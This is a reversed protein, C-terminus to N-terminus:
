AILRSREAPVEAPVEAPPEVPPVFPMLPTGGTGRRGRLQAEHLAHFAGRRALLQHYRGSEVVRGGDLVLILDADQTALLNHSILITTRGNMLRRLPEMVRREAAPDLGTAPEDLLMVPTDRIMARAIAVRQRQGGSLRRGRQGVPTELGDPLDAAVSDCDAARVARDFADTDADARGWLINERLTGDIMLTEQMVVGIQDRLDALTRDRVDYGDLSVSGSSPDYFRLLLKALTSKGSGSRGVVAVLEGPRATFSIDQLAPAQSGPYSFSVHRVEVVGQCRGVPWPRPDQTVSPRAHLVEAIREAGASATFASTALEGLDRLPAYLQAFYAMFVLLAGLTLEGRSLQWTGVGVVVMLGILEILEVLPAYIGRLRSSRMATRVVAEGEGQFRDVVSRERNYAQIMGVNALSEEAISSLAGIRHRSERSTDKMRGTFRRGVLWFLPSVGIASLALLPDVVVLMTAYVVVRLGAGVATSVGSLVLAEISAVDAGVRSLLDGLKRREFFDMSLTQLHALVKTRVNLLFSESARTMVQAAAFSVVGM